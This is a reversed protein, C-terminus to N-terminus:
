RQLSKGPLYLRGPVAGSGSIEGRNYQGSLTSVDVQQGTNKYEEAVHFCTFYDADDEIIEKSEFLFYPYPFPVTFRSIEKNEKSRDIIIKM